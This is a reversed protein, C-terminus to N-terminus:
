RATRPPAVDVGVLAARAIAAAIFGSVRTEEILREIHALLAKNGKAVVALLGAAAAWHLINM